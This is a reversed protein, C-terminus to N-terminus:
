AGHQEDVLHMAEVLCLLIGEQRMDLTAHDDEDAGGGFVRREFQVRRQERTAAYMYQFRDGDVVDDGRELARQGIRFATETFQGQLDGVFRKAQDCVGGIAVHTTRERQQFDGRFQGVVVGDVVGRQGLYQGVARTAEVLAALLEVVLNGRQM